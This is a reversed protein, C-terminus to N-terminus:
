AATKKIKRPGVAHAKAVTQGAIHAAAHAKRRKAGHLGGIHHPTFVMGLLAAAGLAKHINSKTM